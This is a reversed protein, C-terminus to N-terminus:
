GQTSLARGDTGESEEHANKGGGEGANGEGHPARLIARLRSRRRAAHLEVAPGATCRVVELEVPIGAARRV